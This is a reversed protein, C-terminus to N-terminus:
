LSGQCNEQSKEFHDWIIYKQVLSLFRYYGNLVDQVVETTNTGDSLFYYADFENEGHVTTVTDAATKGFDYVGPLFTNRLVGYGESSYYFPNPSAVGGDVWNSENKINISEGTHIFRGNQTGGGFFDEGDKKVLTQTTDSGLVLAESEEMVVNDKYAVSMKATAKEFKITTDGATIVIYGDAESVTAEPHSYEASSDPYQPIKTSYGYVTTAYESFEGSPDVNYRFIDGELFTIKAQIGDNFNVTVINANATASEVSTLAGSEAAQVEAAPLQPMMGAIMAAALIASLVKRGANKISKM